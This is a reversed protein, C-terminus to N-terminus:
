SFYRPSTSPNVRGQEHMYGFLILENGLSCLRLNFRCKRLFWVRGDVAIRPLTMSDRAMIPRMVVGRRSMRGVTPRAFKQFAFQLSQRVSRAVTAQDFHDHTFLNSIVLFISISRNLRVVELCNSSTIAPTFAPMPWGSM